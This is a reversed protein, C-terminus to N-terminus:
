MYYIPGYVQKKACHLTRAHTHAHTHAHTNTHLRRSRNDIIERVKSLNATAKDRRERLMNASDEIHRSDSVAVNEPKSVSAM